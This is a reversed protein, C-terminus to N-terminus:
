AILRLGATALAASSITVYIPLRRWACIVAVGVGLLRADIVVEGGSTLTQEAAVACVIAVPLANLLATTRRGVRNLDVLFMGILRQGQVGVALAGIVTWTLM